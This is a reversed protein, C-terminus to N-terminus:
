SLRTIIVSPNAYFFLLVFFELILNSTLTHTQEVRETREKKVEGWKLTLLHKYIWFNKKSNLNSLGYNQDRAFKSKILIVWIKSMSTHCTKIAGGLSLTIILIQTNILKKCSCARINTINASFNITFSEHYKTLKVNDDLESRVLFWSFWIKINFNVM